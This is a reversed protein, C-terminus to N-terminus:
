LGDAAPAMGTDATPERGALMRRLRRAAAGGLAAARRLGGRLLRRPGFAAPAPAETGRLLSAALTTWLVCAEADASSTGGYFTALMRQVFPYVDTGGRTMVAAMGDPRRRYYFLYEPVVGVQRGSRALKVFTEWDHCYTSRDEVFGGAARLDATRFVANADGYINFACAAPHPGGTPCCQHLFKGRGVDASDAFAAFFCTMAAADPNHRMARVFTEAMGAAALNDADVPIFFEGRAERLLRNRAAGLGANPHRLFRFRPHLRRQEEWVRRSFDCTSGDDLVLVELDPHTQAALSALTEPLYRGLNYHTVAVTVTASAPAAAPCVPPPPLALADELATRQSGNHGSVQVADTLRNDADEREPDFFCPAPAAADAVCGPLWRPRAAVFPVGNVICDRVPAPVTECPDGFVAVHGGEMLYDLMRRRDADCRAPRRIGAGLRGSVVVREPGDGHGWASSHPAPCTQWGLRRAEGAMYESVGLRRDANEFTYRECYDLFLDEATPWRKEAERLWQGICDLRVVLSVDGFATGAQRAQVSRFGPAQWCPFVIAGFRHARHLAQLGYLILNSSYLAPGCGPTGNPARSEAPLPLDEVRVITVGAARLARRGASMARAGAPGYFLVHVGWGREARAVAERREAARVPGDTADEGGVVLCVAKRGHTPPHADPSAM